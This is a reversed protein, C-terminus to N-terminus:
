WVFYGLREANAQPRTGGTAAIIGRVSTHNRDFLKAIQHLSEGKQWRDLM